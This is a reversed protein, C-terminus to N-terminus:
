VQQLKESSLIYGDELQLNIIFYVLFKFLCTGAITLKLLCYIFLWVYFHSFHLYGRQLQINLLDSYIIIFAYFKLEHCIIVFFSEILSLFCHVKIGLYTFTIFCKYTNSNYYNTKSGILLISLLYTLYM